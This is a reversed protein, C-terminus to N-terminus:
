KSSIIRILDTSQSAEIREGFSVLKGSLARVMAAISDPQDSETLRHGTIPHRYEKFESFTVGKPHASLFRYIAPQNGKLKRCIHDIHSFSTKDLLRFNFWGLWYTLNKAEDFRKICTELQNTAYDSDDLWDAYVKISYSADDQLVDFECTPADLKTIVIMLAFGM